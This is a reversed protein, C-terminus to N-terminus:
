TPITKREKNYQAHNFKKEPIATLEDESDEGNNRGEDGNNEKRGQAPKPKPKPKSIVPKMAVKRTTRKPAKKKFKPQNRVNGPRQSDSVQVGDEEDEEEQREHRQHEQETEIDKLVDWDEQTKEKEMERLGQVIATLGKGVFPPPKRVVTPSLGPAFNSATPNYRRLFTPTEISSELGASTEDTRAKNSGVQSTADNDNRSGIGANGDDEVMAAYRLTTPTAFLNALNYSAPSRENKPDDDEDEGEDEEQITSMTGRNKSPTRMAAGKHHEILRNATPTATSGGSESLLDFLGLAKGDRQPTPGVVPKLPTPDQRHTTPSFLRRISSPSDYPDLQSPHTNSNSTKSPTEFIGKAAKRPTATAPKTPSSHKRKKPREELKVSESQEANDDRSQSQSDLSKM